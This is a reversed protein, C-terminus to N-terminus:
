IGFDGSYIHSVTIINVVQKYKCGDFSNLCPSLRPLRVFVLSGALLPHVIDERTAM